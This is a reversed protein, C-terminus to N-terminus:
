SQDDDREIEIRCEFKILGLLEWRKHYLERTHRRRRRSSEKWLQIYPPVLALVALAIALWGSPESLM